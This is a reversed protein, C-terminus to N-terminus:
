QCDPCLGLIEVHYDEVRFGCKSAAEALEGGGVPVVVDGVRGCRRCKIHDHRETRRDYQTVDGVRLERILGEEVLTGLTRYVTAYGITPLVKRAREFIQAATPHDSAQAVLEFILQRQQTRRM